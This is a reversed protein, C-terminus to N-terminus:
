NTPKRNIAATTCVPGFGIRRALLHPLYGSQQSRFGVGAQGGKRILENLYEADALTQDFSALRLEERQIMEAIKQERALLWAARAPTTGKSTVKAKLLKQRAIRRLMKNPPVGEFRAEEKSRSALHLLFPLANSFGV